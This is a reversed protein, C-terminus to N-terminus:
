RTLKKRVFFDFTGGFTPSRTNNGIRHSPRLDRYSLYSINKFLVVMFSSQHEPGSTRDTGHEFFYSFSTIIM